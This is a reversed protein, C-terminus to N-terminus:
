RIGPFSVASSKTFAPATRKMCFSSLAPAPHLCSASHLAPLRQRRTVPQICSRPLLSERLQILYEPPTLELQLLQQRPRLGRTGTSGSTAPAPRLRRRGLHNNITSRAKRPRRRDAGCDRRLFRIPRRTRRAARGARSARNRRDGWNRGHGRDGRAAGTARHARNARTARPGRTARNAGDGGSARHARNARGTPGAPGTLGTPGTPGAPGTLGTPGPPGTLGTPGTPGAPGIPGAPGPPGAPGAPGVAGVTVDFVDFQGIASPNLVGVRYEGPNVATPSTCTITTSSGLNCLSTVDGAGFTVKDGAAFGQGYITLQTLASNLQASFITINSASAPAAATVLLLSSWLIASPIQALKM